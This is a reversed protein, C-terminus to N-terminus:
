NAFCFDARASKQRKIGAQPPASGQLRRSRRRLQPVRPSIHWVQRWVQPVQRSCSDELEAAYRSGADSESDFVSSPREHTDSEFDSVRPGAHTDSKSDSVKQPQRM